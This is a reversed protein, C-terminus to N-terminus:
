LGCRAHGPYRQARHLGALPASHGAALQHFSAPGAPRPLARVPEVGLAPQTLGDLHANCIIDQALRLALLRSNILVSLDLKVQNLQAALNLRRKGQKLIDRAQKKHAMTRGCLRAEHFAAAGALTVLPFALAMWKLHVWLAKPGMEEEIVQRRSDPKPDNDPTQTQGTSDGLLNMEAQSMSTTQTQSSLHDNVKIWTDTERLLGLNWLMFLANVGALVYVWRRWRIPVVAIFREVMQCAGLVMLSHLLLLVVTLVSVQGLADQHFSAFFEELLVVDIACMTLWIAGHFGVGFGAWRHEGLFMRARQLNSHIQSEPDNSTKATM